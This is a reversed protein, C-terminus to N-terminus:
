EVQNGLSCTERTSIYVTVENVTYILLTIEISNYKELLCIIEDFSNVNLELDINFKNEEVINANKNKLEDILNKFNNYENYYFIKITVTMFRNVRIRTLEKLRHDM